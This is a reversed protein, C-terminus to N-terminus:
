AAARRHRFLGCGLAMLGLLGGIAPAPVQAGPTVITTNQTSEYAASLLEFTSTSFAGTNNWLVEVYGYNWDVGGNTSFRFAMFSGAGFNPSAVYNYLFYSYAADNSWYSSASANISDGTLLKKPSATAGNHAFEFFGANSADLGIYGARRVLRLGGGPVFSAVTTDTYPSLGANAGTINQGPSGANTLDITVIAAEAAPTALTSAGVGLAIYAALGTKRSPTRAGQDVSDPATRGEGHGRATTGHHM